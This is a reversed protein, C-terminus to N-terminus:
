KYFHVVNGTEKSCNYYSFANILNEFTPADVIPNNLINKSAIMPSTWPNNLKLKSPNLYIVDGLDYLKKAEKKTIKIM